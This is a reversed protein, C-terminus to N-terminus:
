RGDEKMEALLLRAMDNGTQYTQSYGDGRAGAAGCTKFGHIPQDKKIAMLRSVMTNWSNVEYGYCTGEPTNLYNCFTWPSAMEIEEIHDHINIGTADEFTKMTQAFMEHKKSVYEEQTFDKWVDETLCTTFTMITTGKPSADPNAVNYVVVVAEGQGGFQKSAAFNAKNDLTDRIFYTYSDIGLEEISKNLGLYTNFIRVGHKEASIRKMEREPVKIRKDLLQTYAIHPNVNAIVYNTEIHGATTDVGNIRGNEDATVKLARVNQWIEGGLERFREVGAVTLGHSNYQTIGPKKTVYTYIMWAQHIFSFNEYDAGIYGWYVDLLDIADEPMGIKRLVKHYPQEAVKLFNPFHTMFYLEETKVFDDKNFADMIHADFRTYAADCEECLAFFREMPEKSGPVAKEMAAIANEKGIPLTFDIKKGSRTTGIARFAEPAYFWKIPMKYQEMMLKGLMGWNGEEGVGCFEHLSADFEFRGRIFSTSCGGPLNHQEVILTKKGACALTLAASLGGTGAGIVVADFKAM